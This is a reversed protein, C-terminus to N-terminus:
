KHGPVLAFFSYDPNGRLCAFGKYDEGVRIRIKPPVFLSIEEKIGDFVNEGGVKKSLYLTLRAVGGWGDNCPTYDIVRGEIYSKQPPNTVPMM